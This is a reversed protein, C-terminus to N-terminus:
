PKFLAVWRKLQRIDRPAAQRGYRLSIFVETIRDIEAAHLPLKIKVREAFDKAGEGSGKTLGKKALKDCFRAYILLAPDTKRRKQYLMSASLLLTMVALIATLWYVMVKSDKIGFESLLNAQHLSNYDIVWRQWNYDVAGWIFRAQKFLSYVKSFEQNDLDFFIEEGPSLRSIDLPYEIREPAIAATPDYRVWGRNEHWVEAWAHADAQRVRIFRGLDNMEGGQFGTVVRAPIHAARLLYVFASAYHSCFGARTEFLFSEIPNDDLKPPELTYRFNERRFHDLLNQIFFAPPADIGHMRRVFEKIRASPKGPLQTADRFEGVSLAGTNYAPYSTLKYAARQGPNASTILQFNANRTLPDSFGVPMDLAFVWNQTQPEMLLTYRYPRGSVKPSHLSYQEFNRTQMWLKGNTMSMVPGRWYREQPPPIPGDFQARFVLKDSLSLNTISGPELVDSLGAMNKTESGVAMWKPAELRPFLIFMAAALPAAQLIILSALKLAQVIKNQLGNISILLALLLCCVFGIYAGLLMNQEYLFQTAAVVFTMYIILYFDRERSIEMLKLGLATILLSSGADRGLIGQREVFLLAIGFILLLFVFLRGPLWHPRWIGLLRWSLLAIFFGFSLTSVHQIHPLVALGVAGLLLLLLNKGIPPTKM